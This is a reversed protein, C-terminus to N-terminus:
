NRVYLAFNVLTLKKLDESIHILPSLPLDPGTEGKGVRISQAYTFCTNVYFHKLKIRFNM